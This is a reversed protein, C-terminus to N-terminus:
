LLGDIPGGNMFNFFFADYPLFCVEYGSQIATRLVTAYDAAHPSILQCSAAATSGVATIPNAM